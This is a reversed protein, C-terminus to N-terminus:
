QAGGVVAFDGDALWLIENNGSDLFLIGETLYLSDLKEDIIRQDTTAGDPVGVHLVEGQGSSGKVMSVMIKGLGQAQIVDGIQVNAM